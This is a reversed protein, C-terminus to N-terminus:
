KKEGEPAATGSPLPIDAIWCTADPPMAYRVNRSAADGKKTVLKDTKYVKAKGCQWAPDLGESAHREPRKNECQAWEVTYEANADPLMIQTKPGKPSKMGHLTTTFVKTKGDLITLVVPVRLGGLMKDGAKPAYDM